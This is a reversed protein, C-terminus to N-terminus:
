PRPFTPGRDRDPVRIRAPASLNRLEGAEFSARRGDIFAIDPARESVPRYVFGGPPRISGALLDLETAHGRRRLRYNLVGSATRLGRVEVGEGELWAEPLGAAIVVTGDAERDYAFLDLASRLFDSAVWGHPLDGIFRAHRRDRDIVEPWQQWGPPRRAALFYGLAEEARGPWGLRVFAGVVRWEYPTYDQWERTGDRRALFERWYREFTSELLRRPLGVDGVGPALAITTSTADFDGLDAAGPIYDIGRAATVFDLSRRVDAAFGIRQAEIAEARAGLGLQTAVYVADAYGRLAWFDDWYSHMPKASYGEHSISPPLLGAFAPSADGEGARGAARLRDLYGVAGEIAPWAARAAGIDGTARLVQAALHIFEGASDHEPVPDAGREDVCCPVKGDPFVFRAYAALYERPLDTDGLRLLADAMMAGDRIWSRAYARTGPRLLAGTRSLIVHATATRLADTVDRAQASGGARVVTRNLRERWYDASAQLARAADGPLPTPADRPTPQWPIFVEVDAHGAPALTKAFDLLGSALRAEEDLVPRALAEAALIDAPAAATEFALGGAVAPRSLPVVRWRDNLTLARGDWEIRGIASVGGPTSLFQAPPNVQFPRALLVLRARLTHNTRNTLRYRVWLGDGARGRAATATVALAVRSTRRTTTPIPLYGSALSQQSEGDAWGSLHGDILLFPELSPAGRGLEVAGDESLLGSDSGGEEAVLTWYSQESFGRPFAGRPVTAAIAAVLANDSAGLGVDLLALEALAVGGPAAHLTLRVYRAETEGLRLWDSPGAGHTVSRLTRWATGDESTAVEYARARRGDAWDLRLGGFERALSYDLTLVCDGGATACRWATGPDGDVADAPASTSAGDARAVPRPWTAPPPPLPTLSIAGIDLEGPAARGGANVVVELSATRHLTRDAAPGWAFEIQRRRIRFEQWESTFREPAPRYWWVNDGTGDVFKIEIPGTAQPRRLRITLEFNTPFDLELPRRVFAFGAHGGFDFDMRLAPAADGALPAAHVAVGESGAPVWIGPELAIVRRAM